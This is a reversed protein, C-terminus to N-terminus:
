NLKDSDGHSTGALRVGPADMHERLERAAESLKDRPLGRTADYREMLDIYKAQTDVLMKRAQTLEGELRAVQERLLAMGADEPQDARLPEGEGYYLWAPNIEPFVAMIRDLTEVKVGSEKEPTLYKSLTQPSLGVRRCFENQSINEVKEILLRLRECLKM